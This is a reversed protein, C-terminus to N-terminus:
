RQLTPALRCCLCVIHDHDPPPALSDSVWSERLSGSMLKLANNTSPMDFSVLEMLGGNGM